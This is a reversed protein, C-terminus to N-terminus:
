RLLEMRCCPFRQEHVAVATGGPPDGTGAHGRSLSGGSAEMALDTIAQEIRFEPLLRIARHDRSVGLRLAGFPGGVCAKM